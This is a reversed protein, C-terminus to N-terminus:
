RLFSTREDNRVLNKTHRHKVAPHGVAEERLFLAPNRKTAGRQRESVFRSGRSAPSRNELSANSTLFIPLMGVQGTSFNENARTKGRRSGGRGMGFLSTFADHGSSVPEKPPPSLLTRPCVFIETPPRVQRSAESIRRASAIAFRAPLCSPTRRRRFLAAAQHGM